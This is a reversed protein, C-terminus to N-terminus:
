PFKRNEIHEKALFYAGSFTKDLIDKATKNWEVVEKHFVSM